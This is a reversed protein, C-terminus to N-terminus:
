SSPGAPEPASGLQQPHLESDRRIGAGLDGIPASLDGHLWIAGVRRGAVTWAGADRGVSGAIVAVAIFRGSRSSVPRRRRDPGGSAGAEV